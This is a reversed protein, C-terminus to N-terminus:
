QPVHEKLISDIAVFRDDIRSTMNTSTTIANLFAFNHSMLQRSSSVILGKYPELREWEYDALLVSWTDFLARNFPNMRNSFKDWKRFAYAEFLRWANRMARVFDDELAKLQTDSIKELDIQKTLDTLFLDLTDYKSYEARNWRFAAFRLVVERDVMRPHDRLKESTALQFEPRSVLRHIFERSRKKSM